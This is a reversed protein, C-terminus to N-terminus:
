RCWTPPSASARTTPCRWCRRASASSSGTRSRRRRGAEGIEREIFERERDAVPANSLNLPTGCEVCMVEDEIDPLSARPEAARRRRRGLAGAVHGCRSGRRVGEELLPRLEEDLWERDIPGRRARRDQRPSRGRVDGPLGRHAYEEAFEGDPDRLNPYTIGYRRAFELADEPIDKYNVGLVAAAGTSAASPEELLPLEDVCPPCWSAWFNLM